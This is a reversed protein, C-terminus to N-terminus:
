KLLWNYGGLANIVTYAGMQALLWPRRELFFLIFLMVSNGLFVVFGVGALSPIGLAM